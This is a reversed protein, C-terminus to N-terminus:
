VYSNRLQPSNVREFHQNVIDITIKKSAKKSPRNAIGKKRIRNQKKARKVKKIGNCTTAILQQSYEFCRRM